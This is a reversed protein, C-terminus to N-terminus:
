LEPFNGDMVFVLGVSLYLLSKKELSQKCNPSCCKFNIFSFSAIAISVPSRGTFLQYCHSNLARFVRQPAQRCCLHAAAHWPGGSPVARHAEGGERTRQQNARVNIKKEQQVIFASSRIIQQVSLQSRQQHTGKRGVPLVTSDVQWAQPGHPQLHVLLHWLQVRHNERCSAVTAQQCPWSSCEFVEVWM